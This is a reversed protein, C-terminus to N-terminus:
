ERGYNGSPPSIAERTRENEPESYVLEFDLHGLSRGLKQLVLAVHM